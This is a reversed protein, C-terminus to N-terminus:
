RSEIATVSGVSQAALHTAIALLHHLALRDV